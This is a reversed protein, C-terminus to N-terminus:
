HLLDISQLSYFVFVVREGESPLNIELRAM